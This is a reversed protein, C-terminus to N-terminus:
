AAELAALRQRLAQIEKVLMPVLKSYDVAMMDDPDAPQHVAEPAATLLEQAIFGARQHTQDAIWDYSRVKISDIVSGFEPADVINEKLRQDSTVGYLVGTTGAQTISGISTGNYTFVAYGQGSSMSTSHHFWAYGNAPQYVFGNTNAGFLNTTGVLLNGSADLTMAQTFSIANGALGNAATYWLHNAGTMSYRAAAGLDGTAGWVYRWTTYGIDASGSAYANSTLNVQGYPGQLSSLSGNVLQFAPRAWASPTVGLGLNGSSDLRMRVALTGSGKTYFKLVGDTATSTQAGIAANIENATTGFVFRAEATESANGFFRALDVIAGASGGADVDLKYDPSSTGIGLNGGVPNLVIDYAAASDRRMAQLWTAGTAGSVGGFLGYTGSASSLFLGGSATGLTPLAAEGVVHLKAFPSSTGIGFNGSTDIRARETNNTGFLLNNASGQIFQTGSTTLIEIKTDATNTEIRVPINSTGYVHLKTAPSSTGIGVSGTDTIRMKESLVSGTATSFTLVGEDSSSGGALKTGKIQALPGFANYFDLNTGNEGGNAMRIATFDASSSNGAYVHLKTAPSSTGIGLGTSTLRMQESSDIRFLMNPQTGSFRLADIVGNTGDMKLQIQQQNTSDGNYVVLYQGSVARGVAVNGTPVELTTGDFTLASGSTVVKSGNLYAVGNATGSNIITANTVTLANATLTTGDFTLASGSTVVKSSNFFLLSNATAAPQAQGLELKVDLGLETVVDAKQQATPTTGGFKLPM